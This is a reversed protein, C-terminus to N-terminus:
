VSEELGRPLVSVGVSPDGLVERLYDESVGGSQIYERMAEVAMREDM